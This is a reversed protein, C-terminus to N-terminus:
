SAEGHRIELSSRRIRTVLISDIGIKSTGRAGPLKELVLLADDL